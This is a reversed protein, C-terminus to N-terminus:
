RSSVAATRFAELKNPFGRFLNLERQLRPLDSLGRVPDATFLAIADAVPGSLRPLWQPRLSALRASDGALAAFATAHLVAQPTAPDEPRAEALALLAESAGAWDRQEALLTALAPLGPTGLARLTALAAEPTGLAAQARAALLGRALAEEPRAPASDLAALAAAADGAALRLSALRLLLEPRQAPAARDYTQQALAAGRDPLDMAGLREALMALAEAGRADKPLLPALTEALAVAVTPPEQALAQLLAAEQAPRINEARDPYAEATEKLGDLAGRADGAATRLAAIRLRTDIEDADGRWAFLAAELAAAARGAELTGAALRLEVSRRLARARLRRDRGQALAAYQRLAEEARGEAEALRAQALALEPRDGAAQLLRRAAPLQGAELLTEAALPLLRQRLPEPYALLLPLTNAFGEAAPGPQDTAAALAARWLAAEDTGALSSLPQAEALRGALLAAAGHILLSRPDTSARPDEQFALRIMAQAEQALGLALLSEAAARRLPLRALPPAAALSAQQARLREQAPAAELGPLDMLRTMAGAESRPDTRATAAIGSLIFRDGARRLLTSDARALAAVGLQTPLLDVQALSRSAAIAQGPQRVTGLLLPLGTEPDTVPVPRGPAAAHLVVRGEEPEALISREREAIPLPQLLWHDGERRARLGAPPALPLRLITAEPLAEAALHGFVPDGQLPATDFRHPQDLVLLLLDGRRLIALGTEAPVPLLLARGTEVPVTRLPLGRPEAPAALPPPPAPAAAPATVPNPALPAPEAIPGPSPQPAPQPQPGPQAEAPRSARAPTPQRPPAARNEAQRPAAPTADHLDLVLRNGLRYHRLRAGPRLTLRLGEPVAELTLLNRPLRRTEPLVPETGPLRLLIADGGEEVTYPLGPAALDLVIRGHGPHDGLRVGARDAWAPAALVLTGCLALFAAGRM